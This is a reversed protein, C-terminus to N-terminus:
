AYEYIIMLGPGGSGGAVTVGNQVGVAGSGGSGFSNGGAGAVAAIVNSFVPAGLTGLPNSGGGGSISILASLVMGPSGGQGRIFFDTGTPLGAISGGGGSIGITGPTGAGGGNGGPFTALAGISTTGGNGGTLGASPVGAAGITVTQGVFGTTLKKIGYSASGGGGGASAFAGGAAPCGGGAGGGGVGYIIISTTAANYTPVLTTSIYQINILRGTMQGVTAADTAATGNALGTIKNNGMPLNGTFPTQGDSSVSQTLASAVDSIFTGWDTSTALVGNVAPFWTNNVLSFVGAGNRPM